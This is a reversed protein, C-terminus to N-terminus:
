EYFMDVFKAGGHLRDRHRRSKVRSDDSRLRGIGVRATDGYVIKLDAIPVEFRAANNWHVLDDYLRQIDARCPDSCPHSLVLEAFVEGFNESLLRANVQRVLGAGQEPM